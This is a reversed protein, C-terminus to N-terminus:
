VCVKVTFEEIMVVRLGWHFTVHSKFSDTVSGQNLRKQAKLPFWALTHANGVLGNFSESKLMYHMCDVTLKARPLTWMALEGNEERLLAPVLSSNCSSTLLQKVGWAGCVCLLCCECAPWNFDSRSDKNLYLVIDSHFFNQSERFFM